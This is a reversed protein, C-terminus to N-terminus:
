VDSSPTEFPPEESEGDPEADAEPEAIREIDDVGQLWAEFTDPAGAAHWALWYSASVPVAAADYSQRHQKEYAVMSAIKAEVQQSTGDTYSVTFRDVEGDLRDVLALWAEFKGEPSGAAYWALQAMSTQIPKSGLRGHAKEFAWVARPPAPVTEETGDKYTIDFSVRAM